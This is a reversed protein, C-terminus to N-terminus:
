KQNMSSSCAFGSNMLMQRLMTSRWLDRVHFSTKCVSKFSHAKNDRGAAASSLRSPLLKQHLIKETAWCAPAPTEPPHINRYPVVLIFCKGNLGPKVLFFSAQEFPRRAVNSHLLTKQQESHGFAFTLYFALQWLFQHSFILFNNHLSQLCSTWIRSIKEGRWVQVIAACLTNSQRNLSIVTTTAHM